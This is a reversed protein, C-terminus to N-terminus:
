RATTPLTEWNVQREFANAARYLVSEEFDMGVLMLGVPLGNSKACPISLAPHGTADFPATNSLMNWGHTVLGKQDIGPVYRHAKMPTTPMALLDVQELAQYSDFLDSIIAHFDDLEQEGLTFHNAKALSALKDKTPPRVTM